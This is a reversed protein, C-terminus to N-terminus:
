GAIREELYRLWLTQAFEHDDAESNAADAECRAFGFVNNQYFRQSGPTNMWARQWARARSAVFETTSIM